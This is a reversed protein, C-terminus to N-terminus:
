LNQKDGGEGGRERERAKNRQCYTYDRVDLM